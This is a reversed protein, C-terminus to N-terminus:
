GGFVRVRPEKGSKKYAFYATLADCIDDHQANPFAVLEDELVVTWSMGKPLYVQGAEFIPSAFHMREEKTSGMNRGPMMAVVCMGVISKFEQIIQQGSAKDEVLLRSCRQSEYKRRVAKKLDPYEVKERYMDVIYYGNECQAILIGVSFDNKEKVKIATDWTWIYEKVPPLSEYYKFWHKKIIGGKVPHPRQQLQGATGYMGLNMKWDNLTEKTQRKTLIQGEKRKDKFYPTEPTSNPEAEMPLCLHTFGGKKLLYGSLDNENLRQMIVLIRCTRHDNQRSLLSSTYIDICKDLHLKSNGDTKSADIPDDISILDGGDGTINSGMSFVIRHGNKDNEYRTKQNQDKRFQIKGSWMSQFWPSEILERSRRSDRIALERSHSGTLLQMSPDNIWIWVPYVVSCITSKLSRPPINIILKRIDGKYLHELHDCMVEIYWDDIYKVSEIHPWALRFFTYLNDKCLARTLEKKKM